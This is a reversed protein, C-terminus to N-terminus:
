TRVEALHRGLEAHVLAPHTLPAMHGVAPIEVTRANPRGYAVARAMGRSAAHSRAGSVVTLPVPIRWESFPREEAWCARVEQFMKWGVSLLFRRTPEPMTSWAGPGNWYDVFWEIWESRGAREEDHVFWPDALFVRAERVADADVGEYGKALAGFLVPEYLFASALRAGLREMMLLAVLAGYSHAVLHVREVDDPLAQVLHQVDDEATVQQGRPIAPLPPYGLNAPTLVRRDGVTSTPVGAWLGPNTGTSHIFLVAESGGTQM